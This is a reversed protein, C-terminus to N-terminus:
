RSHFNLIAGFLICAAGGIVWANPLEHFFLVGWLAAFVVQMYSFATARSASEHSMGYTLAIQGAQTAIGVGLLTMWEWGRPMVFNMAVSPLTLPITVLPLYFVIVHPHERASLYRVVVYASATFFAGAIAILLDFTRLHNEFDGFFTSPHAVLFVGVSSLLISAILRLGIAEHLIVSALMTTFMPHLYQIVTAEALPLHTLAYFVCALAVFGLAGRLCLLSKNNGWISVGVRTVMFYGIVVSIISRALVIEQSPLRQGALKVLAGMISFSFASALMYRVGPTLIQM